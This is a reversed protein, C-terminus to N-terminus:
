FRTTVGGMIRRGNVSGGYVSFTRNNLVNNGNLFVKFNNNIDYGVNADLTV